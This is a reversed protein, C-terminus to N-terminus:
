SVEAKKTQEIERTKQAGEIAARMGASVTEAAVAVPDLEGGLHLYKQTTALDKHGLLTKIMPGAQNMLAAWTGANHRMDHVRLDSLGARARILRWAAEVNVGEGPKSSPFVMVDDRRHRDAAEIIAWAEANLPLTRAGGKTDPYKVLHRTPDIWAWRLGTAETKRVGSWMIFRLAAVAAPDFRNEEEVDDMAKILAAMQHGDLVRERGHERNKKIRLAPNAEVLGHELAINLISRLAAVARNAAYPTKGLGAHFRVVLPRTISSLAMKGFTPVLHKGVVDDYWGLTSAKVRGALVPRATGTWFATFTLSDGETAPGADAVKRQLALAAERAQEPTQLPYRGIKEVRYRGDHLRVRAVYDIVGSEFVRVGFGKTGVDWVFYDRAGEMPKLSGLMTRTIKAKM